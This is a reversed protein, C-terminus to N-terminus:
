RADDRGGLQERVSAVLERARCPKLIHTEGIEQVKLADCQYGSVFVVKLDQKIERLTGILATGQTGDKFNVESVVVDIRRRERELIEVAEKPTTVQLVELNAHELTLRAYDRFIWNGDVILV